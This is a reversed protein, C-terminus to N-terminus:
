FDEFEPDDPDFSIDEDKKESKNSDETNSYTNKVNFKYLNELVDLTDVCNKRVLTAAVKEIYKKNLEGDKTELVYNLLANIMGNSFGMDYSLMEIIKADAQSVDINNQKSKLFAFPSVSEFYSIQKAIDSESNLETKVNNKKQARPHSKLQMEALKKAKDEDFKNGYEAMLTFSSNVVQAMVEESLGFLTAIHEIKSIEEQTFSSPIIGFKNQLVKFLKASSFDEKLHVKTRGVLGDINTTSYEFDLQYSDSIGASVDKFGELNINHSYKKVLSNFREEGITGKLLGGFVIHNLFDKAPLPDNLVLVFLDKNNSVYTSILNVSELSKKAVLFKEFTLGSLAVLDSITGKKDGNKFSHVLFQYLYVGDSFILPQYFDFLSVSSESDLLGRCKLEFQSDLNIM